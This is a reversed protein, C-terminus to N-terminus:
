GGDSLLWSQSTTTRLYNVSITAPHPATENDLKSSGPDQNICQNRFEHVKLALKAAAADGAEKNGSAGKRVVM